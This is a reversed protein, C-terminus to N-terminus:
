ALRYLAPEVGSEAVLAPEHDPVLFADLMKFPQNELGEGSM